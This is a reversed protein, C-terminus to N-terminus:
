IKNLKNFSVGILNKEINLKAESKYDYTCHHSKAQRHNSCFVMQCKCHTISETLSLKKKCVNLQCRGCINSYIINDTSKDTIKDIEKDIKKNDSILNYNIKNDDILQIDKKTLNVSENVVSREM